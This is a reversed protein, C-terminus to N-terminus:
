KSSFPPELNYEELLSANSFIDAADGLAKVRGKHLILARNCVASAFSIDHTAIIKAAKIDNLLRILQKKSNYDLGSTPEDMVIFEPKMALVGAIAARRKEGGSLRDPEKDRLSWIGTLRLTEEVREELAAGKFGANAPGFAVDEYVTPMFLQDDSNQFVIGTKKRIESLNKKELNLGDIEISGSTPFIFGAVAAVITSKGAGNEGLLALSNGSNVEFSVCEVGLTGDPYIIGCNKVKIM